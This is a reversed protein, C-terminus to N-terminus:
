ISFENTSESAAPIRDPKFAVRLQREYNMDFRGITYKSYLHERCRYNEKHRCGYSRFVSPQASFIALASKRSFRCGSEAGGGAGCHPWAGDVPESVRHTCLNARPETQRVRAGAPRAPRASKIALAGASGVAYRILLTLTPEKCHLMVVSAPSRHKIARIGNIGSLKGSRNLRALNGFPKHQVVVKFSSAQPTFSLTLLKKAHGYKRPEQQLKKWFPMSKIRLLDVLALIMKSMLIVPSFSYVQVMRTTSKGVSCLDMFMVIKRVQKQRM